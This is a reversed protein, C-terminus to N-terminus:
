EAPESSPAGQSTPLSHGHFPAAYRSWDKIPKMERIASDLAEMLAPALGSVAAGELAEQSVGQGFTESYVRILASYHRASFYMTLRTHLLYSDTCNDQAAEDSWCPSATKTLPKRCWPAISLLSVEYCKAIAGAHGGNLAVGKGTLAGTKFPEPQLADRLMVEQRYFRLNADRHIIVLGVGDVQGIRGSAALTYGNYPKGKWNKEVDIIRGQRIIDPVTAFAASQTRGLGHAISDKVDSEDPIVAGLVPHIAKGGFKAAFWDAVRETLPTESKPFESRTLM